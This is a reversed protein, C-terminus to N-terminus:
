TTMHPHQRTTVDNHLCTLIDAHRCEPNDNGLDDLLFAAAHAALGAKGIQVGGTDRSAGRGAVDVVTAGAAV